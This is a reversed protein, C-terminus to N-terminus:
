QLAPFSATATTSTSVDVTRTDTNGAASTAKITYKGAAATDAALVIPLTSSYPAVMPAAQPLSLSYDGTTGDANTGAILYGLGNSFQLADVSANAAVNVTGTVTATTSASLTFPATPTSLSTNAQAVVPVGNIIDSAKGSAAIVVNYGGVVSSQELPSLIFHGTSDAVTGRVVGAAQQAYVTAGINTYGEIRGSVIVPMATIVPKLLYGTAGNGSNSKGNTVVSKCANFDLVVDVLTDPEVTFPSRTNIKIGSQVASPTKLAVETTSGQPVVSNRLPSANDNAVLKLRLQQYTGAPLVTTGLSELAGNTLSLLDIKRPTALNIDYWGSDNPEANTSSNVRVQSVTVFVHEYGCAPADTLSVGLTGSGSGGGGCAALQTLAAASALLALRFPTQTNKM